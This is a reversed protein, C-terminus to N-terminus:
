YSEIYKLSNKSANMLDKLSYIPYYIATTALFVVQANEFLIDTKKGLICMSMQKFDMDLQKLVSKNMISPPLEVGLHLLRTKIKFIINELEKLM